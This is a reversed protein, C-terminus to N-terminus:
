VDRTIVKEVVQSSGDSMKYTRTVTKTAKGGGMSAKTSESYGMNGEPDKFDVAEQM